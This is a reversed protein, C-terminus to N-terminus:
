VDLEELKYLAEPNALLQPLRLIPETFRLDSSNRVRSLAVYLQGYDFFKSVGEIIVKDLTLGQAKHVTLFWALLLPFQKRTVKNNYLNASSRRRKLNVQM